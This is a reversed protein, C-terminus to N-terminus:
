VHSPRWHSQRRCAGIAESLVDFLASGHKELSFTRRAWEQGRAAIESSLSDSESLMMIQRALDAPDGARYLLGTAGNRVIELTGGLNAAVVPRGARMAEVTVRGFAEHRSTMVFVDCQHLYSAPSSSFDHFHIRTRAASAGAMAALKARYDDEGDGVLSLEVDLGREILIGTARVVDEQGKGPNFRGLTLLRLPHDSLPGSIPLEPADVANYITRIKRPDTYQGLAAAVTRSCTVIRTSLASMFTLSPFNGFFHKLAFQGTVCERVYWVHPVREILAVVAGHPFTSTNTVIVDPSMNAVM